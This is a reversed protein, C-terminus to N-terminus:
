GRRRYELPTCGCYRKFIVGFKSQSEYGVALAIDAISTDSNKLLKAAKQMRQNQIYRKVTDGYMIEFYKNISVSSLDYMKELENMTIERSHDQRVMDHIEQAIRRQGKTLYIQKDFIDIDDTRILDLVNLMNVLYSYRDKDASSIIDRLDDFAHRLREHCQGIYYQDNREYAKRLTDM